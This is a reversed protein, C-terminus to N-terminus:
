WCRLFGPPRVRDLTTEDLAIRIADDWRLDDHESLIARVRKKLGRPIKIHAAEEDFQEEMEAFKERLQKVATSPATPGRWCTTM